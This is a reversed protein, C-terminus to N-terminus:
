YNLIVSSHFESAGTTEKIVQLNHNRIGGGPIFIIKDGFKSILQKIIFRGEFADPKGGSTLIRRFGCAIIEETSKQLDSCQDFARHFTVPLPHATKIVTSCSEVDVNNGPTLAGFVFGQINFSKFKHIQYLMTNMEDKTYVFNGPRYRIMVFIDIRDIDLIKKLLNFGPTVGGSSYDECLEIRNVKASLAKQATEFDFVALEFLM